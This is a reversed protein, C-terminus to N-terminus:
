LLSQYPVPDKSQSRSNTYLKRSSDEKALSSVVLSLKEKVSLHLNALESELEPAFPHIVVIKQLELNRKDIAKLDNKFTVSQKLYKIVDFDELESCEGIFEIQM